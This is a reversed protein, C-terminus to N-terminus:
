GDQSDLPSSPTTFVSSAERELPSICDAYDAYNDAGLNDNPELNNYAADAPDCRIIDNHKAKTALAVVGIIIAAIIVFTILARITSKRM